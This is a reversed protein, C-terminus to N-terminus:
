GGEAAREMYGGCRHGSRQAGARGQGSRRPDIELFRPYHGKPIVAIRYKDESTEKQKCGIAIFVISVAVIVIAGLVKKM